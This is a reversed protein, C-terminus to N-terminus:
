RNEMTSCYSIATILRQYCIEASSYEPLHLKNFCTSATPLSNDPDERVLKDIRFAFKSSNPLRTLTTVFKLLLRKQEITMRDVAEFFYVIPLDNVSEYGNSVVTLQRIQRATIVNSGQAMHSLLPGTLLPHKKFGINERFGKRILKLPAKVEDIRLKTYENIYTEAADSTVNESQSHGPMQHQAGDWGVWTWALPCEREFGEGVLSRIREFHKKLSFDSELVDNATIRVGCLYRWVFPAFLLEQPINLRLIMGLIVGIAEFCKADDEHKLLPIYENKKERGNPTLVTVETSPDFISAAIETVLERAPGGADVAEEGVFSVKWPRVPCILDTTKLQRFVNTIQHLLSNKRSGIGNLQFDKALKRNIIINPFSKEDSKQFKKLIIDAADECSILFSLSSRLDKPVNKKAILYNYHHIILAKLCVVTKSYKHILESNKALSEVTAFTAFRLVLRPLINLLEQTDNEDWNVVFDTMDKVFQDHIDSADIEVVEEDEDTVVIEREGTIRSGDKANADTPNQTKRQSANRGKFSKTHTLEFEFADWSVDKSVLSMYFETQKTVIVERIQRGIIVSQDEFFSTNSMAIMTDVPIRYKPTLKIHMELGSPNSFQIINDPLKTMTPPVVDDGFEWLGSLRYWLPLIEWFPFGVISKRRYSFMRLLQFYNAINIHQLAGPDVPMVRFKIKTSGEMEKRTESSQTFFEPFHLSTEYALKSTFIRQESNYIMRM